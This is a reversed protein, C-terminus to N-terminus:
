QMAPAPPGASHLHLLWDGLRELEADLAAREEKGAKAQREATSVIAQVTRVQERLAPDDFWEADVLMLMAIRAMLEPMFFPQPAMPAREM